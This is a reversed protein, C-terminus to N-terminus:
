ILATIRSCYSIPLRAPQMLAAPVNTDSVESRIKGGRIQLNQGVLRFVM